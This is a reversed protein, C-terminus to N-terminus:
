IDALENKNIMIEIDSYKQGYLKRIKLMQRMGEPAAKESIRIEGDFVGLVAQLEEPPHMQPYVVALITFGKLKLTPL